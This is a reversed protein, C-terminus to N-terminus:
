FAAVAPAAAATAVSLAGVLAVNLWFLTTVQRPDVRERQVTALSLGGDRLVEALGTFATAMAILGYDSPSLLRALAITSGLSLLFKLGQAGLTVAGGRVTHRRLGGAPAVSPFHVSATM